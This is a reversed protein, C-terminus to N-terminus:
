DKILIGEIAYPSASNVKIVAYSGILSLDDSEFRSVIRGETYGSLYGQKRDPGTVLIKVKKGIPSIEKLHLKSEEKKAASIGTKNNKIRKVEVIDIGTKM